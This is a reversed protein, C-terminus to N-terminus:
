KKGLYEAEGGMMLQVQREVTERLKTPVRM